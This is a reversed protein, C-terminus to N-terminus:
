RELLERARTERARWNVRRWVGGGELSLALNEAVTLDPFLAPQQYVAAIGLRRSVAPSNHVVAQGEVELVGSDPAVVGTIVKILTSKGAGNEGILVHVEGRELTFSVGKLAQVGAYSKSIGTLNLLSM